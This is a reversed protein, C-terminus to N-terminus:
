ATISYGTGGTITAQPFALGPKAGSTKYGRNVWKTALTEDATAGIYLRDGGAGDVIYVVIYAGKQTDFYEFAMGGGTYHACGIDYTSRNLGTPDYMVTVQGTDGDCDGSKDDNKAVFTQEGDFVTSAIFLGTYGSSAGLTAFGSLQGKPTDASAGGALALAALLAALAAIKV